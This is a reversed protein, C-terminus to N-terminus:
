TDVEDFPSPGGVKNVAEYAEWGRGTLYVGRWCRPEIHVMGKGALKQLLLHASERTIKLHRGMEARTPPNEGQLNHRALFLLLKQQRSAPVRRPM